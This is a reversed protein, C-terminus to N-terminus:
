APLQFSPSDFEKSMNCTFAVLSLHWCAVTYSEILGFPLTSNM